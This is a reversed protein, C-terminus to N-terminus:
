KTHQLLKYKYYTYINAYDTPPQDPICVVQTFYIRAKRLQGSPFKFDEGRILYATPINSEGPLFDTWLVILCTTGLEGSSIM